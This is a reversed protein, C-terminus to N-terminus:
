LYVITKYSMLRFRSRLFSGQCSFMGVTVYFRTQNLLKSSYRSQLTLTNNLFVRAGTCTIGFVRVGPCTIGFVRVVACTIGYFNKLVSVTAHDLVVVVTTLLLVCIKVFWVFRVYRKIETSTVTGTTRTRTVNPTVVTLQTVRTWSTAFSRSIMAFTISQFCKCTFEIWREPEFRNACSLSM